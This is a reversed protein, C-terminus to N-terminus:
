PAVGDFQKRIWTVAGWLFLAASWAMGVTHHRAIYELLSPKLSREFDGTRTALVRATGSLRVTVSDSAALEFRELELGAVDLRDGAGLRVEAGTAPLAIRAQELSSAVAAQRADDARREVFQLASPRLHSWAYAKGPALGLWLELPPPRREAQAADGASARLWEAHAFDASKAAGAGALRWQTPGSFEVDVRVVARPADLTLHVQPGAQVVLLSGAPHGVRRLVLQQARLSLADGGAAAADEALSAAPSELRTQGELRLEGDVAQPGLDGAADLQLGVSSAKAELTFPVSGVPVAAAISVLVAVALAPWLAPPWRRGRSPVARAALGADILQLRERLDRLEPLLAAPDGAREALRRAAEARARELAAM